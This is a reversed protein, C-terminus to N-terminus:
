AAIAELRMRVPRGMSLKVVIEKISKRGGPVSKELAEIVAKANEALETDSMMEEGIKCAIALQGRSRVRISTKLREVVGKLDVSPPVPRPMKGKPGLFQGLARGIRPMLAAEAVFIDYARSVKRAERKNTALSDLEEPEIVRDVDDLKKAKVALAGSAIVCISSPRNPRHPLEVIENINVESKKVKRPDLVLVLEFSQPFNRKKSSGRAELMLEELSKVDSVESLKFWAM